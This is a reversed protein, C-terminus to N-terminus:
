KAFAVSGGGSFGTGFGFGFAFHTHTIVGYGTGFVTAFSGKGRIAQGQSDSMRQVNGLGMSALTSNPVSAVRDGASATAVMCGFLVVATCLIRLISM